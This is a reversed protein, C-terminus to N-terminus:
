PFLELQNHNGENEAEIAAIADTSAANGPETQHAWMTLTVEGGGGSATGQGPDAEKGSGSCATLSITLVVCLLLSVIKKM